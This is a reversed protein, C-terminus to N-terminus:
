VEDKKSLGARATAIIDELAKRTFRSLGPDVLTESAIKEAEAYGGAKIWLSAANVAVGGKARASASGSQAFANTEIEAAQKFLNIALAHNGAKEASEADAALKESETYSVMWSM